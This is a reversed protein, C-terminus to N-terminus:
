ENCQILLLLPLAAYYYMTMVYEKKISIIIIVGSSGGTYVYICNVNLFRDSQNVLTNTYNKVYKYETIIVDFIVALTFYIM